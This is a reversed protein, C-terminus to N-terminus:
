SITFIPSMTKVDTETLSLYIMILAFNRKSNMDKNDIWFWYGQYQVAVFANGPKSRSSYIHTRMLDSDVAPSAPYTWKSDVHKAPVDIGAAMEIMIELMSRTMIAIEGDNAPLNGLVIKYNGLEPKVKLIIRVTEVDEKYKEKGAADSIVFVITEKDNIKEIRLDSIGARQIESLAQMLRIFETKDKGTDKGVSSNNVGNIKKVTFSFMVDIPWGSQIMSLVAVPPIPTLLSKAFKQGTLPAYTITPKDLYRTTGAINASAGYLSRSSPWSVGGDATVQNSLEYQNTVSTVDLFTPPDFYRMKVVNLLMQKKWSEAIEQMYGIRDPIVTKPGISACGTLSIALVGAIVYSLKLSNNRMNVDRFRHKQLMRSM